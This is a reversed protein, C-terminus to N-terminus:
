GKFPRKSVIEGVLEAGLLKFNAATVGFGYGISSEVSGEALARSRTYDWVLFRSDCDVTTSGSSGTGSANQTRTMEIVFQFATVVVVLEADVNFRQLLPRPPVQYHHKGDVTVSLFEDPQAFFEAWRPAPLSTIALGTGSDELVARARQAGSAHFAKLTGAAPSSDQAEQALKRMESLEMPFSAELDVASQAYPALFVRRKSLEAADFDPLVQRESSAGSGLCASAGCCLLTMLLLSLPRLM